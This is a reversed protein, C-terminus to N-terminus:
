FPVTVAFRLPWRQPDAVFGYTTVIMDYWFHFAVARRLDGQDAWTMYGFWAGLLSTVAVQLSARQLRQTRTGPRLLQNPAHALGFLGAQTGIARGPGWWELMGSQVMGRFLAEESIAAGMSLTMHVPTQAALGEWPSLRTGLISVDVDECRGELDCRQSQLLPGEQLALATGAVAVLTLLPLGVEPDSMISPNVPALLLDGLGEDGIPAKFADDTRMLRADRYAAYISYVHVQQLTLGALFRPTLYYTAAEDSAEPSALLAGVLGLETAATAGAAGYDNLYLQGGGPIATALLAALAPSPPAM